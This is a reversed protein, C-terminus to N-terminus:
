LRSILLYIAGCLACLLMGLIVGCLGSVDPEPKPM